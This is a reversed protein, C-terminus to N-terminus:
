LQRGKWTLTGRRRAVRSRVALGALLAVSVPHALADVPPSGTRRAAVVRGAVGAAYGVAGARSGRLAALPPLVYLAVLLGVTPLPLTWLSKSYGDVLEGWSAYMRTTALATGDCVGGTGGARKFARLLAVDEGAECVTVDHGQAALRAAAALGGVGAGIVVVRSM